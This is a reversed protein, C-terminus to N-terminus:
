KDYFPKDETGQFLRLINGGHRIFIATAMIATCLTIPISDSAMWSVFPLLLAAALSAASSYGSACLVLVYILLCVLFAMPSLILVGGAATAVGKGGKFGLFVPFLHGSFACLAALCLWLDGHWSQVPKMWSLAIFVPIAGKLIDGILTALALKAGALRYVNHAGINKSGSERINISTFLRTVIVGWPISGMLYAAPLLLFFKAM